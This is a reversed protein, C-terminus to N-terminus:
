TLNGEITKNNEAACWTIGSILYAAATPTLAIGWIFEGLGAFWGTFYNAKDLILYVIWYLGAGVVPPVFSSLIFQWSKLGQNRKLVRFVRSAAFGLAISMALGALIALPLLITLGFILLNIVAMMFVAASNCIVLLVIAIIKKASIKNDM